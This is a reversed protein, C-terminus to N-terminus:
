QKLRTDISDMFIKYNKIREYKPLNDNLNNILEDINSIEKKVYINASLKDNQIYLKVDSIDSHINRVKKSLEDSSINEGNSTLLMKKIRGTLFIKGDKISGCDGTHFYGNKDFVNKNLEEDTYGLFVSDGKVIIEGVGDKDPKDIKVDMDEFIAGVSELDDQYPYAIALSSATESLAYAQMLNLNKEKYIRRTEAELPAGGCFLYKINKGFAKDINDQYAKLLNNYVLPVACFVTPNTELLEKGINQTSSALYISYGALLSYIFNYVAAYTHNLPLFLYTSDGHNFKCRRKLSNYGAFINKLSLKVGKSRGTTGSSFVIKCCDNYNNPKLELLDETFKYKLTDMCIFEIDFDKKLKEVVDKYTNSYFLCSVGLKQIGYKVDEYKWEKSVVVGKGVYFTSALDCEMLNTNNESYIMIYKNKMKKDLLMKAISLSHEIFEGFTINKYIGDKNKEYIYPDSYWDNYIRKVLKKVYIM